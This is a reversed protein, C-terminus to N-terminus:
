KTPAAAPAAAEAPAPTAAQGPAGDSNWTDRILQWDGNIRRYVSVYKGKDVTAGSGDQTIPPTALEIVYSPLAVDQGGDPAAFEFTVRDYGDHAGVRVDVLQAFSGETGGEQTNCPGSRHAQSAPSATAKTAKAKHAPQPITPSSSPSGVTPHSVSPAPGLSQTARSSCAALALGVVVVTLTIRRM